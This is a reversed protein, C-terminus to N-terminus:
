ETGFWLCRRLVGREDCNAIEHDIQEPGAICGGAVGDVFAALPRNRDNQVATGRPVQRRRQSVSRSQGNGRSADVVNFLPTRCSISVSLRQRGLGASWYGPPYMLVGWSRLPM